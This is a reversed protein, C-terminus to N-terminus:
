ILLHRIKSLRKWKKRIANYNDEVTHGHFHITKRTRDDHYEKIANYLVTGVLAWKGNNYFARAIIAAIASNLFQPSAPNRSDHRINLPSCEQLAHDSHVLPSAPASNESGRVMRGADATRICEQSRRAVSQCTYWM